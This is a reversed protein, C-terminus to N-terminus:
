NRNSKQHLLNESYNENVLSYIKIRVCFQKPCSQEQRKSGIVTIISHFDRHIMLVFKRTRKLKLHGRFSYVYVSTITLLLQIDINQLCLLSTYALYINVSKGFLKDADYTIFNKGHIM